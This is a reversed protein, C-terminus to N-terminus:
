CGRSRRRPCALSPAPAAPPASLGPPPVATLFAAGGHRRPPGPAPRAPSPPPPRGAADGRAPPPAHGRRRSRGRAGRRSPLRTRSSCASSRSRRGGGEGRGCRAPPSPRLPEKELWRRCLPKSLLHLQPAPRLRQRAGRVASWGISTWLRRSTVGTGRGPAARESFGRGTEAPSGPEPPERATRISPTNWRTSAYSGPPTLEAPLPSFRAVNM